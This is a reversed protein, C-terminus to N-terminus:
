LIHPAEDLVQMVKPLLFESSVRGGFRQLLREYGMEKMQRTIIEAQKQAAHHKWLKVYAHPENEYERKICLPEFNKDVPLVTCSTFDMGIGIVDHTSIKASKIVMPVIEEIAEIYDGPHQLAWDTGLKTKGNPLVDTIVGHSYEKEAVAVEEGNEINVLMARASLTGFDIGLSYKM